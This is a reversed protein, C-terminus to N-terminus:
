FFNDILINRRYQIGKFVQDFLEGHVKFNNYIDASLFHKYKKNGKYM